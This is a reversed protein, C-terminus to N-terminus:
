FTIIQWDLAPKRLRVMVSMQNSTSIRQKGKNTHTKLPPTLLHSLYHWIIQNAAERIDIPYIGTDQAMM